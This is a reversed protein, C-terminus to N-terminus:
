VVHRIADMLKDLTSDATKMASVIEPAQISLEPTLPLLIETGGKHPGMRENVTLELLPPDGDIFEVKQLKVSVLAGRFFVVRGTRYVGKPSVLVECPKGNLKKQYLWAYVFGSAGVLVGFLVFFALENYDFGGGSYQQFAAFAPLGLALITLNTTTKRLDRKLFKANAEADIRWKLTADGRRLDSVFQVIKKNKSNAWLWGPLIGLGTVLLFIHGAESSSFIVGGIGAVVGLVLLTGFAAKHKQYQHVVPLADTGKEM